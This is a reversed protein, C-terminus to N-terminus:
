VQYTVSTNSPVDLDCTIIAGTITSSEGESMTNTQLIGGTTFVPATSKHIEFVNSTADEFGFVYVFPITLYTYLPEVSDLNHHNLLIPLFEGYSSKGTISINYADLATIREDTFIGDPLIDLKYVRLFSGLLIILSFIIISYNIRKLNLRFVSM